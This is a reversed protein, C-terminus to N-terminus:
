RILQLGKYSLFLLSGQARPFEGAQQGECQFPLMLEGPDGPSVLCSVLDQSWPM